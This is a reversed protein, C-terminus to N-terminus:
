IDIRPSSYDASLSAPWVFLRIWELVVPLMTLLRVGFGQGIFVGAQDGGGTVKGIVVTRVVVFAAGAIAMAVLLPWRRSVRKVTSAGDISPLLETAMLLAPLVIAHEKFMLAAAYMACLAIVQRPNIGGARSW